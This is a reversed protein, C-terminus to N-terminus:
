SSKCVIQRRRVSSRSYSATICSINVLFLPFASSMSGIPFLTYSTKVCYKVSSSKMFSNWHYRTTHLPSQHLHEEPVAHDQSCRGNSALHLRNPGPPQPLNSSHDATRHRQCDGLLYLSRSAVCSPYSPLCPTFLDQCRPTRGRSVPCSEVTFGWISM